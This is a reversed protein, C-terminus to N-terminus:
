KEAVSVTCTTIQNAIDSKLLVTDSVLKTEKAELNITKGALGIEKQRINLFQIMVDCNVPQNTKNQLKVAWAIKIYRGSSVSAVAKINQDLVAIKGQAFANSILCILLLCSFAILRYRKFDRM